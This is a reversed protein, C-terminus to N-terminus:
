WGGGGGGGGGGGSSGGGGGGGGGSRGSSSGPPTSAAAATSALVSGVGASLGRVGSFSHGHYWTTRYNAPSQGSARLTAAFRDAWQTEVDLAIAYPLYAEFVEPTVPKAYRHKLEDSEAIRLYDRFGEAQDLLRRGDRTPAKVLYHFVVNLLGIVVVGAILGVPLTGLKSFLDGFMFLLFGLPLAAPVLRFFGKATRAAPDRLQWLARLFPTGFGGAFVAFFLAFVAEPGLTGVSSVAAYGAVGLTIAWGPVLWGRNSYYHARAYRAELAERHQKRLAQVQSHNTRKFALGGAVLSQLIGQEEDSPQDPATGTASVTFEEDDESIKLAGKVALGVLTASLAKDDWGMRRILRVSAPSYGAPPEYQPVIVGAAPDRGVLSWAFLYYLFLGLAGGWVAFTGPDDRWAYRVRDRWTPEYVHGKPWGVVITLGEGAGLKRTATFAAGDPLPEARYDRGQAGEAGTYAEATIRDAPVGAPLRVRASVQDIAFIWGNGTVNWYLEDHGDFFGLQRDTVYAIRDTYDGPKLFVDKNGVYVRVGNSLPATHFPEPRGDREVSAVRFEVQHRSGTSTRYTTPFDRYIGRKINDGEARVRITETVAQSGDANVTIASDYSLIREDALAPLAWACLLVALARTM